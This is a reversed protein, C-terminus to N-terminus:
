TLQVTHTQILIDTRGRLGLTSSSLDVDALSLAPNEVSVSSCDIKDLCNNLCDEIYFVSKYFNELYWDSHNQNGSDTQEHDMPASFATQCDQEDGLEASPRGQDM